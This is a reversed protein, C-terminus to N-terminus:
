WAGGNKMGYEYLEFPDIGKSALFGDVTGIRRCVREFDRNREEVEIKYVDILAWFIKNLSCTYAPLYPMVEVLAKAERYHGDDIMHFLKREFGRALIKAATAATQEYTPLMLQTNM